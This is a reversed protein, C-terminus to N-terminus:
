IYLMKFISGKHNSHYEADMSTELLVRGNPLYEPFVYSSIFIINNGHWVPIKILERAGMVRIISGDHLTHLVTTKDTM